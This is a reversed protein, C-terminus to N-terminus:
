MYFQSLISFEAEDFLKEEEDAVVGTREEGGSLGRTGGSGVLPPPPLPFLMM